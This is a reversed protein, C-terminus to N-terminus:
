AELLWQLERRSSCLPPQPRTLMLVQVALMVGSFIYCMSVHCIRELAEVRAHEDPMQLTQRVFGDRIFLVNGDADGVVLMKQAAGERYLWLQATYDECDRKGLSLPLNRLTWTSSGNELQVLRCLGQGIISVTNSNSDATADSAVWSFRSTLATQNKNITAPTSAILRGRDASWVLLIQCSQDSDTQQALAAVYQGDDSVAVDTFSSCKPGNSPCSLTRRRLYSCVDYLTITPKSGNPSAEALALLPSTASSGLASPRFDPSCSLLHSTRTRVGEM